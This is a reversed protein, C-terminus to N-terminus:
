PSSAWLSCSPADRPARGSHVCVMGTAAAGSLVVGRFAGKVRGYKMRKRFCLASGRYDYFVLELLKSSM